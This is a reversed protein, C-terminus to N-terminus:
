PNEYRHSREIYYLDAGAAVLWGIMALVFWRDRFGPWLGGLLFVLGSLAIMEGINRCLPRIRIRAKEQPPMDRWAAIHGHLKGAAFLGGAALFLLGFLVCTYNINM